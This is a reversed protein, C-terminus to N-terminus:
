CTLAFFLHKTRYTHDCTEWAVSRAQPLGLPTKRCSKGKFPVVFYQHTPPLNTQNFCLSCHSLVEFNQGGSQMERKHWLPKLLFFASSHSIVVTIKAHKPAFEWTIMCSYTLCSHLDPQICSNGDIQLTTKFNSSIIWLKELVKRSQWSGKQCKLKTIKEELFFTWQKDTSFCHIVNIWSHMYM